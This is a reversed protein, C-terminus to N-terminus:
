KTPTLTCFIGFACDHLYGKYSAAPSIFGKTDIGYVRYQYTRNEYVDWDIYRASNGEYAKVGNKVVRYKSIGNPSTAASWDLTINGHTEFKSFNFGFQYGAAIKAPAVLKPAPLVIPQTPTVPTAPPNAPPLTPTPAPAPTPTPTPAPTPAPAPTPSPTTTSASDTKPYTSSTWACFFKTTTGNLCTNIPPDLAVINNETFLGDLLSQSTKDKLGLDETWIKKAAPNAAGATTFGAGYCTTDGVIWGYERLAVAFIRATEAKRADAKLDARSNIWNSIDVDSSTIKFRMGEPITKDVTILQRFTQKTNFDAILNAAETCSESRSIDKAAGWEVTTAPAVAFGCTKGVVAPDNKALQAATCTPGFATSYIEMTLAHRIEGAKVEEPTVIMAANQIGMGREATVGQNYTNINAQKGDKDRITSAGGVCLRNGPDKGALNYILERGGICSLGTRDLQGIGYVYGTVDDIIIMERDNADDGYNTDTQGSPNWANDFPISTEPAMCALDSVDYCNARDLNSPYCTAADCMRIKKRPTSANAHYIPTSYDNQDGALGFQTMFRGKQQPVTKQFDASSANWAQAYNFLKKGWEAAATQSNGYVPLDCTPTNWPSNAFPVKYTYNSVRAGCSTVTSGTPPTPGAALSKGFIWFSVVLLMFLGFSQLITRINSRKVEEQKDVNSHVQKGTNRFAM